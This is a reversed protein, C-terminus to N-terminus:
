RLGTKSSLAPRLVYAVQEAFLRYGASTFHIGDNSYRRALQHSGPEATAAFLDVYSIQKSAAYEQILRNLRQRRAIHEALWAGGEAGAESEEVRISPVTVPIPCGGSALTLEYMKVLSRMIEKPAAHWGLDNTGGLIVVYEPHHDLVDNRFRLVMEGTLEGCVGSVRVRATSGLLSQLWDGYPTSQGQPNERTPSQFGATLSDGFCIVLPSSSDSM